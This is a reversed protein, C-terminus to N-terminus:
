LNGVSAYFTNKIIGRLSFGVAETVINLKLKLMETGKMRVHTIYDRCIPDLMRCIQQPLPTQKRPKQNKIFAFM